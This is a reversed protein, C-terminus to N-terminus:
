DPYVFESLNLIVRCMEVLTETKRFELLAASEGATPPRALALRYAREIQKEPDSGVEEALREALHRAQLNVFEGNFLTLAQPAVSTNVRRPSSRTTDCFDLVEMMPIIMSRKVLAYITRRSADPESSAKWIKDPDSSGELAAAPIPPLVSPGYMRRNLRGSVALMSDRIAEVELRSYPVRWFLRDDPDQAGYAANWRKSMCYTNSTLILHHLKKLSWGNDMFWAALWDLLEPHTPREGITGFDNATRVLGEGFHAQWVRNVIVRATLPNDRSAIWRALTLRRQRSFAPQERVLVAPVAPPVEPGPNDPKGRILVHMPAPESAPEDFIYARPLDPTAARLAAIKREREAVQPQFLEPWAGTVPQSLYLKLRNVEQQLPQILRDRAALADLQARTGVPVDHETRGERPRHLGNFVAAMSYYDRATLPDFKHDHCRACGLTLALFAQSTTAVMDDLQDFRDMAPDAPEDDWPGLRFFGTATLTEASMDPLEDGAIQELVFRDFPKDSNLSQIVYDRYRWVSPKTADREYGNTEAYRVVDLWHRAWREGYAPRALLDDVVSDLMPSAAFAQQEALTPPLGTVDLYMRRLLATPPAPPSPKWNRAELKSLVFADIPNRVWAQDRVRPVEPRRVPQFSWHGASSQRYEAGRDIWARLLNIQAPTLRDGVPPMVIKPNQGSVYQILLSESGKGPVIARLADERRDLRLGRMQTQSGHCPFCRTQLIPQIDRTFDPEQAACGLVTLCCVVLARM